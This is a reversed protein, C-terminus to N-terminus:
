IVNHFLLGTASPNHVQKLREFISSFDSIPNQISRKGQMLPREILLGRRDRRPRSGGAAGPKLLLFNQTFRQAPLLKKM